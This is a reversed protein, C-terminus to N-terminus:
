SASRKVLDTLQKEVAPTLETVAFSTPWMQGDDLAAADSFGFTGYRSKFKAASQFFCVIKGDRAWGPMGYWTKAALGPDAALVLEHIRTAISRDPEDMEAIKELQQALNDATKSGSKQQRRLEAAREKVAQREFDSLGDQEQAM